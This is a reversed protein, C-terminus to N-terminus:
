YGAAISLRFPDVGGHLQGTEPHTLIGLATATHYAHFSEEVVQVRHGLAQLGTPVAEPFRSDVLVAPGSCDIRPAAVADQMGMGRDLVNMVIQAVAQIIRRGGAAGVTLLPRGDCAAHCRTQPLTTVGAPTNAYVYHCVWGVAQATHRLTLAGIAVRGCVWM